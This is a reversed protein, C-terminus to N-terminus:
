LIRLEIPFKLFKGDAILFALNDTREINNNETGAGFVRFISYSAGKEFIVKWESESIFLLEKTPSSTGKVEIFKNIGNEVVKFDYPLYSEKEENFWEINSYTAPNELFYENIYKESWRGVDLRVQESQVPAYEKVSTVYTPAFQKIVPVVQKFDIDEIKVKEVFVDIDVGSYPSEEEIFEESMDDVYEFASNDRQAVKEVKYGKDILWQYTDDDSLQLILGFEREMDKLDLLQCISHSLSYLTLPSNWKGTFFFENPKGSWSEIKSNVILEGSEIRYVLSLKEAQLFQTQYLVKNLRVLVHDFSESSNHSHVLALYPVRKSLAAKLAKDEQPSVAVFELVDFTIIPIKLFDSLAKIEDASRGAPLKIFRESNVPTTTGYVNFIFLDDVQQFTNNITLLSAKKRWNDIAAKTQPDGNSSQGILQDYIAFIQKTIDASPNQLSIKQLLSLCEIITISKKFAFFEAQENTISAPLDAVPLLNGVINKLSPSFVETSKYCVADTCPICASNKVFYEVYSPVLVSGGRYFYRTTGCRSKFTEWNELMKGWFFKSFEPTALNSRFEMATFNQIYHQGSYRYSHYIEAFAAIRELWTFYNKSEPHLREFSQRETKEEILDISINERVGLKKFFTKWDTADEINEIYSPSLFHANPLIKSLNKEPGYEDSLYSQYPMKLGNKTIVNLHKLEEYDYDSLLKSRFVDFIFRTVAIANQETIGNEKIRPILAKRVIELDTPERVGLAQLWAIFHAKGAFHNLIDPHVYSLNNFSPDPAITLSPTFIEKPTKYQGSEDMIFKASSLQNLWSPNQDNITKNYFFVNINIAGVPDSIMGSAILDLLNQFTFQTAGLESLASQKELRLDVIGHTDSLKLYGAITSSPFMSSFQPVDVISNTSVILYEDNDQEPIFNIIQSGELLSKNYALEIKSTTYSPYKGNLLKLVDFRYSTDQLDRFWKLQNIAIQEFLFENWVNPMLETREANTLFDGNILFSFGKKAKTPLYSYIVTRKAPILRGGEIQAAFTLKTADAEKLKEPCETESLQKLKTSLEEEIPINMNHIVWSSELAGNNYLEEIDGKASKTIQFVAKNGDIFTVTKVRRLFLIIQCDQFVAEIEKRITTRDIVRIITNVRKEDCYDKVEDVTRETWIPIVQWPYDDPNEFGDYFKDFRFSFGGSLIHAYDSSGFVSKFGIGKYGTKEKQKDKKSARNGIGAIGQVDEKSFHKGNHSFILYENLLQFKVDIAESNLM